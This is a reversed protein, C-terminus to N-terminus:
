SFWQQKLAVRIKAVLEPNTKKPDLKATVVYRPESGCNAIAHVFSQNNLMYVAGMRHELMGWPWIKLNAAASNLPIWLHTMTEPNMLADKHPELYGGPDLRAIKMSYIAFGLDGLQQKLDPVADEHMTRQEHDFETWPQNDLLKRRQPYTGTIQLDWRGESHPQKFWSQGLNQYHRDYQTQHWAQDFRHQNQQIWQYSSGTDIGLDLELIPIDRNTWFKNWVTDFSQQPQWGPFDAQFFQKTLQNM